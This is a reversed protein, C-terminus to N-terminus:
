FNRPLIGVVTVPRGDLHVVRGVIKPDGGFDSRWFDFTLLAVNPGPGEPLDEGPLFDRGLIPTVGLTSFFNVTVMACFLTKPEGNGTVTFADPAHGALSEFSRADRAWDQFDPYSAVYSCCTKHRTDGITVLRDADHYPLPRLLVPYVISFIATNAGIALALTIVAAATFGPSRRLMRLGYRFDQRLTGM